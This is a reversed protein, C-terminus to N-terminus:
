IEKLRLQWMVDSNLTGQDSVSKWLEKSCGVRSEFTLISRRPNDTASTVIKPEDPLEQFQSLDVGEKIYQSLKHVVWFKFGFKMQDIYTM